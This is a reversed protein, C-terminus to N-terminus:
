NKRMLRDYEERVALTRFRVKHRETMWPEYLNAIHLLQRIRERSVGMLDKMEALSLAHAVGHVLKERVEPEIKDCPVCDYSCYSYNIAKKTYTKGCSPCVNKHEAMYKDRHEKCCFKRGYIEEGCELCYRAKIERFYEMCDESCFGQGFVDGTIVVACNKCKRPRGRGKKREMVMTGSGSEVIREPEM